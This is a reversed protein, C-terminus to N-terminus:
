LGYFALTDVVSAVARSLRPHSAELEQLWDAFRGRLPQEPTGRASDPSELVAEVERALRELSERTEGDLDHARALEARLDALSTRLSEDSM